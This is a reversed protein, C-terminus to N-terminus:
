ARKRAPRNIQQDIAEAPVATSFHWGQLEDCGAVRMLDAQAQTEVGGAVVGMELARAVAVNAQLVARAAESIESDQVLARHVKIKRFAFSRLFGVSAFGSGFDDLVVHVGLGRIEEIVRRAAEPDAVLYRETIELELRQAPFKLEALLEGLRHPFDPNRLQAPSMNITVQLDPWNLGDRCAQAIVWMGIRDILGTEEAIPIFEAPPVDGRAPNHWRLLAEVARITVQDAAMIAQYALSFEDNDLATRLEAEIGYAKARLQDLKEDFWNIRMKGARKAAYLAVDARRMLESSSVGDIGGSALGISIGVAVTREDLRFPKGFRSIIEGSIKELRAAADKGSMLLAFEDGGLRAVLGERGIREKLLDAVERILRDGIQHGFNDNIGKFGDLDTMALCLTEGRKLKTVLVKKLSRRNPLDSLSDVLAQQGLDRLELMGKRVLAFAIFFHVFAGMLVLPLIRSLSWTGPRNPTWGLQGIAVGDITRLTQAEVPNDPSNLRLDDAPVAAGIRQLMQPDLPRQVIAFYPAALPPLGSLLTTNANIEDVGAFALGDKTRVIHGIARGTTASTTILRRTDRDLALPREPRLMRGQADIIKKVGGANAIIVNADIHRDAIHDAALAIQNIQENLAATLNRHTAASEGANTERVMYALSLGLLAAFMVVLLIVRTLYQRALERGL